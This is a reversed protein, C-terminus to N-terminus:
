GAQEVNTGWMLVRTGDTRPLAGPLQANKWYGNAFNEETHPHVLPSFSLHAM